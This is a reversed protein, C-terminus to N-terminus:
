ALDRDKLSRPLEAVSRSSPGLGVGAPSRRHGDTGVRIFSLRLRGALQEHPKSVDGAGSGVGDQVRCHLAIGLQEHTWFLGGARGGIGPRKALVSTVLGRRYAQLLAIRRVEIEDLWEAVQFAALFTHHRLVVREVRTAVDGVKSRDGVKQRPQDRTVPPMGERRQEVVIQLM